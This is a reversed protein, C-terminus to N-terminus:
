SFRLERMKDTLMGYNFPACTSLRHFCFANGNLKLGKAIIAEEDRVEVNGESALSEPSWRAM